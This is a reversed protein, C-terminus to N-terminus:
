VYAGGSVNLVTGTTFGAGDSLLYAVAEAVDQPEGTRGVPNESNRRVIAEPIDALMPTNIAGPAIANVTIGLPGLEGSLAKAFGIVGAKAAAYHVHGASGSLGALSSIMVIRGHRQDRMAPTVAQACHFAGTLHVGLMAEWQETSLDLFDVFRSFGAGTVLGDIRGAADLTAAAAAEVSGRDRVDVQAAIANPFRDAADGPDLDWLAVRWGAATMRQAIGRGIGGAGGTIAVVRQEAM